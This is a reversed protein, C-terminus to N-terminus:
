RAAAAPPPPLDPVFIRQVTAFDLRAPDAVPWALAGDADVSTVVAVPVDPPYLGGVGSTALIDGRRFPTAGSILPRIELPGDGRGTALAAVGSRVIRVPVTNTPDTLLLVRSSLRGTEVIRGVLGDPARVPQGPAIGQNAGVSLVATRRTATPTSGIIRGVAVTQPAQEVLRLVRKLRRNEFELARAEVLRPRSAAVEARLGRNQRAADFYDTIDDITASAGRVFARGLGTVPATVDTAIGRLSAFGQPDFRAALLLGIGIFLGAVGIVYSAFLGYQARRSFGPRRHRPPAM